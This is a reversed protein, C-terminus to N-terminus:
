DSFILFATFDMKFYQMYGMEPKKIEYAVLIIISVDNGHVVNCLSDESNVLNYRTYQFEVFFLNPIATFGM